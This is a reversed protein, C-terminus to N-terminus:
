IGFMVYIMLMINYSHCLCVYYYIKEESFLKKSELPSAIDIVVQTNIFRVKQQIPLEGLPDVM